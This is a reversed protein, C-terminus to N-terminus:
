QLQVDRQQDSPSSRQKKLKLYLAETDMALERKKKDFDANIKSNIWELENYEKKMVAIAEANFKLDEDRTALQDSYKKEVSEFETKFKKFDTENQARLQDIL